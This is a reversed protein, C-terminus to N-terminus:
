DGMGSWNRVSQIHVASEGVGRIGQLTGKREKEIVDVGTLRVRAWEPIHDTEVGDEETELKFRAVDACVLSAWQAERWPRTCLLDLADRRLRRDRCNIAPTLLPYILGMDFTFGGEGFVIDAHPHNLITRCMGVLTEMQPTFSDWILETPSLHSNLRMTTNLSHVKMMLVQFADLHNIDKLSSRFLPEFAKSWRRNEAAYMEQQMQLGDPIDLARPLEMPNDFASGDGLFEMFNLLASKEAQAYAMFHFTRRM